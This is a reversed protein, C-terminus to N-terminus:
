VKYHLTYVNHETRIGHMEIEYDLVIKGGNEDFTNIIDNTVICFSFPLNGLCYTCNQRPFESDFILSAPASGKRILNVLNPRSKKFRLTSQVDAMGLEENEKYTIECIDGKERLTGETSFEICEDYDQGKEIKGMDIKPACGKQSFPNNDDQNLNTIFSRIYIKCPKANKQLNSM